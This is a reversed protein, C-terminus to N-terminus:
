YIVNKLEVIPNDFVTGFRQIIADKYVNWSVNEGNLKIFHRHWMMAKDFLQVSILRINQEDPINDLM